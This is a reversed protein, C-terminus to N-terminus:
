KWYELIDILSQEIPITCDWGTAKQIKKNSGIIIKNDNPRVFDPNLKIKM